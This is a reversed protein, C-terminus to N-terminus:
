GKFFATSMRRDCRRRDDQIVWLRGVGLPDEGVWAPQAYGTRGSESTVKLDQDALDSDNSDLAGPKM